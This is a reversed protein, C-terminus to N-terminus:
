ILYTLIYNSRLKSSIRLNKRLITPVQLTTFTFIFIALLRHTQFSYHKSAGGLGLGIIWGISGLTYGIIQCSVHFHFWWAFKNPYVRYYRAIIVGIPLFTGWGLINLIGHVQKKKKFFHLNHLPVVTM